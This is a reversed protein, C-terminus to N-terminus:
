ISLIKAEIEYSYYFSKKWLAVQVFLFNLYIFTYYLLKRIEACMLNDRAIEKSDIENLREGKKKRPYPHQFSNLQFIILYSQKVM